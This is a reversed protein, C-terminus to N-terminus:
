TISLWFILPEIRRIPKSEEIGYESHSAPGSMRGYLKKRNSTFLAPHSM